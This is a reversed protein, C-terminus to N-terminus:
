MGLIETIGLDQFSSLYPGYRTFTQASEPVEFTIVQGFAAVTVYSPDEYTTLEYHQGDFDTSISGNEVADDPLAIAEWNTIDLTSVAEDVLGIPIGTDEAFKEAHAYLESEMRQKVGTKEILTNIADTRLNEFPTDSSCMVLGFVAVGALLILFIAAAVIRKMTKIALPDGNRRMCRGIEPMADWATYYGIESM